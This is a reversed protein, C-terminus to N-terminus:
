LTLRGDRHASLTSVTLVLVVGLVKGISERVVGIDVEIVDTTLDQVGHEGQDLSVTEDGGTSSDRTLEPQTTKSCLM